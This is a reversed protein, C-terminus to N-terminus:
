NGSVLIHRQGAAPAFCGFLLNSFAGVNNGFRRLEGAIWFVIKAFKV